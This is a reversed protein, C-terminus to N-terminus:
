PQQAIEGIATRQVFREDALLWYLNLIEAERLRRSNMFAAATEDFLRERSSVQTRGYSPLRSIQM